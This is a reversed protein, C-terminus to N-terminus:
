SDTYVPFNVGIMEGIRKAGPGATNIIWSAKYTGKNTRISSIEGNKVEIASIEEKFRFEAGDNVAQRYFANNAVMPSASGDNPSWTGGRLGNMNIGNVIESIKEPGVFDINLGYSHQIPIMERLTREDKETYAVFTYGGEIWEIEEGHDNGWSKFIEISRLCTLIKAKSTHTARIGGIAHKNKGQGTSPDKDLVLVKQGSAACAMAAPVGVSGSGIIIVDYSSTM